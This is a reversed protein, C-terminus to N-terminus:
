TETDTETDQAWFSPQLGKPGRQAGRPGPPGRSPGGGGGGPAGREHRLFEAAM